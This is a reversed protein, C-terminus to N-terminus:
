NSNTTLREISRKITSKISHCAIEAEHLEEGKESIRLIFDCHLMILAGHATNVDWKRGKALQIFAKILDDGSEHIRDIVEDPLDEINKTVSKKNKESM